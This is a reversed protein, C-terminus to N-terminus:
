KALVTKWDVKDQNHSIFNPIQTLPMNAQISQYFEEYSGSFSGDGWVKLFTETFKGHNNGEMSFQNDQCGTMLIVSAVAESMDPKQTKLKEYFERNSEFEGGRSMTDLFRARQVEQPSDKRDKNFVLPLARVITGSHCSDSIVVIKVGKKFACLNEFLEDDILQGDYLVWTEDLEDNEDGSFDEIQSGHGAYTIVVLDGDVAKESFIALKSLVAKRTAEKTLLKSVFDYSLSKMIEEYADADAECAALKGDVGYRNPDISNLGIHLSYAKM